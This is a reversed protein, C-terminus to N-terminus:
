RNKGPTTKSISIEQVPHRCERNYGTNQKQKKLLM